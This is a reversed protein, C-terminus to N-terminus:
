LKLVVRSAVKMFLWRYASAPEGLADLVAKRQVDDFGSEILGENDKLAAVVGRFFTALEASLKVDGNEGELM